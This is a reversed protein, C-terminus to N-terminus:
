AAVHQHEQLYEALFRTLAAQLQAPNTRPPQINPDIGAHMPILRTTGQPTPATCMLTAVLRDGHNMIRHLRQEPMLYADGAQYAVQRALVFRREGVLTKRAAQTGHAAHYLYETTILDAAEHDAADRWIESHLTGTLVTSVFGWRHDHLNEECSEGAFWIHLRLKYGQDALVVKLFGNGHQYSRAAVQELLRPSCLIDQILTCIQMPHCQMRLWAALTESACTQQQFYRDLTKTLMPLTQVRAFSTM